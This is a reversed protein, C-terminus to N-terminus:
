KLKLWSLLLALFFSAVSTGAITLIRARRLKRYARDEDLIAVAKIREKELQAEARVKALEIENIRATDHRCSNEELNALRNGYNATEIKFETFGSVVGKVDSKIDDLSTGLGEVAEAVRGLVPLIQVIQTELRGLRQMADGVFIAQSDDDTIVKFPYASNIRPPTM